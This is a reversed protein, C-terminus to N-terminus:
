VRETRQEQTTLHYGGCWNCHYARQVGWDSGSPNRNAYGEVKAAAIKADLETRFRPKGSRCKRSM